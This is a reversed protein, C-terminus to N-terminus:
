EAQFFQVMYTEADYLALMESEEYGEVSYMPYGQYEEGLAEGLRYVDDFVAKYVVGNYSIEGIEDLLAYAYGAGDTNAFKSENIESGYADATTNASSDVSEPSAEEDAAEASPGAMSNSAAAPAEAPAAALAPASAPTAPASQSGSSGAKWLGGGFHVFSGVAICVALLAVLGSHRRLWRGADQLVTKGSAHGSRSASPAVSVEKFSAEGLAESMELLADDINGFARYIDISKV